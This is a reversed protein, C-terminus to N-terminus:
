DIVPTKLKKESVYKVVDEWDTYIYKESKYTWDFDGDKGDRMVRYSYEVLFGNQVPSIEIRENRDM